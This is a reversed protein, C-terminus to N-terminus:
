QSRHKTPTRDTALIQKIGGGGKGYRWGVGPGRILLGNRAVCGRGAMEHVRVWGDNGSEAAGGVLDVAEDVEAAHEVFNAEGGGAFEGFAPLGHTAGRDFDAEIRAAAVEEVDVVGGEFGFGQFASLAVFFQEFPGVGVAAAGGVVLDFDPVGEHGLAAPAVGAGWAEVFAEGFDAERGAGDFGHEFEDVEVFAAAVGACGFLFRSNESGSEITPPDIWGDYPGCAIEGNPEAQEFAGSPTRRPLDFGLGNRANVNAQEFERLL